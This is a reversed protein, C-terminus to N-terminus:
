SIPSAHLWAGSTKDRADLLRAREVDDAAEDLLSHAAVDAKVRDWNRKKEAGTGLLPEEIHGESWSELAADHSLVPLSQHTAPLIIHVLDATAASSQLYASPALASASCGWVVLGSLCHLKLESRTM